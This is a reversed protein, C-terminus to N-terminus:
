GGLTSRLEDTVDAMTRASDRAWLRLALEAIAAWYASEVDRTLGSVLIREAPVLPDEGSAPADIAELLDVLMLIRQQDADALTM